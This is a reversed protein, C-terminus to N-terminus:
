TARCLIRSMRLAVTRRRGAAGSVFTISMRAQVPRLTMWKGGFGPGVEAAQDRRTGPM